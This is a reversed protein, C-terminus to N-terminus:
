DLFLSSVSIYVVLDRKQIAAPRLFRDLVLVRFRIKEGPKYIAKDTQIFLSVNKKEVLLPSEDEFIIGSLGRAVLKYSGNRQIDDLQFVVMQPQENDATIEKENKYNRSDEISLKITTATTPNHLTVWARYESHARINKPATITYYGVKKCLLARMIQAM